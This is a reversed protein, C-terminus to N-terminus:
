KQIKLRRECDVQLIQNQLFTRDRWSLYDLGDTLDWYRRELDRAMMQNEPSTMFESAPLMPRGFERSAVPDLGRDTLDALRELRLMEQAETSLQGDAYIFGHKEFYKYRIRWDEQNLFNVLDSGMPLPQGFSKVLQFFTGTELKAADHLDLFSDLDQRRVQSFAQPYSAQAALALVKVRQIHSELHARFDVRELSFGQVAIAQDVQGGWAESQFLVGVLLGIGSMFILWLQRLNAFMRGKKSM